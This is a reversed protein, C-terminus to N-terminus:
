ILVLRIKLHNNRENINVIGDNFLRNIHNQLNYFINSYRTYEKQLNFVQYDKIFTGTM